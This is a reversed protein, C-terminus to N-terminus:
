RPSGPSSSPRACSTAASSRATCTATRFYCVTDGVSPPCFLVLTGMVSRVQPFMIEVNKFITNRMWKFKSKFTAAAAPRQADLGDQDGGTKLSSVLQALQNQMILDKQAKLDMSELYLSHILSIEEPLPPTLSLSSLARQKRVVVREKGQEFKERAQSLIILQHSGCGRSLSRKM